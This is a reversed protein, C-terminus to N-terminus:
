QFKLIGFLWPRHFDIKKTPNWAYYKRLEGNPFDIRYLNMRWKDAAKPPVNQAGVLQKFPIAYEVNWYKAEGPKDLKGKVYVLTKMDEPHYERLGMFIAGPDSQSRRNLICADFVVNKPSVNLEYYQYTSSAPNLFVEVCEENYIDADHDTKTGWIYDDVCHFGIYLMKSIYLLRVQTTVDPKKGNDANVLEIVEAKRWLPDDLKGTLNIERDIKYCNYLLLKTQEESNHLCNMMLLVTHLFLIIRLIIYM